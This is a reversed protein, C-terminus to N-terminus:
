SGERPRGEGATGDGTEAPAEEFMFAWDESFTTDSETGLRKYYADLLTQQEQRRYQPLWFSKISTYDEEKPLSHSTIFVLIAGNSTDTPAALSKSKTTQAITKIVEKNRGAPGQNLSFEKTEIFEYDGIAEEFAVGEALKGSIKDYAARCGTRAAAVARENLLDARAKKAQRTLVLVPTTEEDSAADNAVNTAEQTEMFSPLYSDRSGQWCAVYFYRGSKIVESLPNEIGLKSAEKALTGTVGPVDPVNYQDPTFFGSTYPITPIKADKYSKAFTSFGGAKQKDPTGSLRSHVAIAFNLADESASAEALNKREQALKRVIEVKVDAFAQESRSDIKEIIHFGFQTEVVDSIKGNELGFVADEFTKVMRGRGFYGLDGGKDANSDDESHLRALEKFNKKERAESLIEQLKKRKENKSEISEGAEAKILIHRAHVEENSYLKAKNKEYYAKALETDRENILLTRIRHKVDDFPITDREGAKRIIHFGSKGEIVESIGGHKLEMAAKEFADGYRLKLLQPATFGTDGGKNKGSADETFTDALKKFDGGNRVELLIKQLEGRRAEKEEDTAGAEIKLLIHNLRVQKRSYKESKNAEYYAKLETESVLPEEEYEASDFVVVQFQNQIAVRYKEEVNENFYIELEEETIEIDSSYKYSTFESVQANCKTFYELYAARADTESVTVTATVRKEIREVIINDRIIEDFDKASLNNVSLISNKFNNFKARDFANNTQFLPRKLIHDRIEDQTVSDCGLVRAQHIARMRNLVEQALIRTIRDNNSGLYRQYDVFFKVRVATLQRFFDIRNIPKGYMTGIKVDRGSGGQFSGGWDGYLFVFPLIIAGGIFFYTIRGHKACFRNISSIIM